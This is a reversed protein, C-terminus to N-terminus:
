RGLRRGFPCWRRRYPQVNGGTRKANTSQQLDSASSGSSSRTDSVCSRRRQAFVPEGTRRDKRQVRHPGRWRLIVSRWRLRAPQRLSLHRRATFSGFDENLKVGISLRSRRVKETAERILDVRTHLKRLEHHSASSNTFIEVGDLGM